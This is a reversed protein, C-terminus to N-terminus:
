AVSYRVQVREATGRFYKVLSYNKINMSLTSIDINFNVDFLKGSGLTNIM